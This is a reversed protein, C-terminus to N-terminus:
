LQREEQLWKSVPEPRYAAMMALLREPDTDALV